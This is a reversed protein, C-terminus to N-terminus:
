QIKVNQEYMRRSLQAHYHGSYIEKVTEASPSHEDAFRLILYHVGFVYAQVGTSIFGNRLYFRLRRAAILDLTYAPDDVEVLVSDAESFRNTLLHLFASGLGQNRYSPLILLYDLLLHQETRVFYAAGLLQNEKTLGMCHYRGRAMDALIRELPKLEDTPFSERFTPYLVSVQDCSLPILVLGKDM